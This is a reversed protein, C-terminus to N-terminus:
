YLVSGRHRAAATGPRVFPRESFPMRLDHCRGATRDLRRHLGRVEVRQRLRGAHAPEMEVPDELFDRADRRPCIDGAM